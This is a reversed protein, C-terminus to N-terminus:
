RFKEMWDDSRYNEPDLRFGRVQERPVDSLKLNYKLKKKRFQKDLWIVFRDEIANAEQKDIDPYLDLLAGVFEQSFYIYFFDWGLYKKGVSSCEINDKTRAGMELTDLLEVIKPREEEFNVCSGTVVIMPPKEAYKRKM